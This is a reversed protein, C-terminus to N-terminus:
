SPARHMTQMDGSMSSAVGCLVKTSANGEVWRNLAPRLIDPAMCSRDLAVRTSGWKVIGAVLVNVM